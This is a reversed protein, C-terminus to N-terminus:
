RRSGRRSSRLSILVGLSIEIVGLLAAFGRVSTLTYGWSLLPNNAVLSQIGEAEYATFKLAGVWLLIAVLAYRIFRVGVGALTVGWDKTEVWNPSEVRDM